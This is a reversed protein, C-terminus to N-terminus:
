LFLSIGIEMPPMGPNRFGAVNRPRLAPNTFEDFVETLRVSYYLALWKYGFRAYAGYRIREFEKEPESIQELDRTKELVRQGASNRYQIKYSASGLYGIYGGAELFLLPDNDEDKTLNVYVGLPMELFFLRHREQTYDFGVSDRISPFTKDVTQQYGFGTWALGPTARLGVTNKKGLPFRFGAGVFYTGSATSSVPVTDQAPGPLAFGRNFVLSFQKPPDTPLNVKVKPSDAEQGLALGQLLVIGALALLWRSHKTHQTRRM